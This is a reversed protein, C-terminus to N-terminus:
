IAWSKLTSKGIFYASSIAWGYAPIFGVGTMILDLGGEGLIKKQGKVIEYGTMGFSAISSAIGLFKIGSAINNVYRLNLDIDINRFRFTPKASNVYQGTIDKLAYANSRSLPQALGWRAFGLGTGIDTNFGSRENSFSDITFM